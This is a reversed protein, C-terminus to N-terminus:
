EPRYILTCAHAPDIVRRATTAIMATTVRRYAPVIENIDEGHMEAMALAQARQLYSLSSFTFDSAFRNIAREVEYPTVGGPRAETLNYSLRDLRSAQYCLESAESMLREVAKRATAESPDELHGKLMLMGPEESGIISADASTFLDGGLLLRRYFRSSRGSALIDTILDCEIYGPQGYGPMPYAVVVCTQPVHGRVELERPADPLPEPQYTRPKIDRRPISDFWREVGRRVQDPTVNGSIALVANNPAYHSYFFDRVDDRTVKEIHAPEKGITPISYPHTRYVLSRLKHFLDGYPRNLHTQKFEEIVVNRQVELSKESFALRLMRDSELWLLTEFNRAPAVDYFNTFDNSTWANNMGGAREIEADFDPINASGGFMLHEFLHALGTMSPDEDRSGVNYLVNVAVM